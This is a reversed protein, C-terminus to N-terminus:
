RCECDSQILPMCLHCKHTSVMVPSRHMTVAILTDTQRNAVHGCTWVKGFKRHMNGTAM